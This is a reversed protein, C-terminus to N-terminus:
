PALARELAPRREDLWAVHERLREATGSRWLERFGPVGAPGWTEYTRVAITLRERAVGLLRRRSEPDLGYGECLARLREAPRAPWGWRLRHRDTKLPVWQLAASAVDVVPTAPSAFDWDIFAVPRSDRFVVNSPFLDNHAVIPGDWAAGVYRKWVANPPPVFAAVAEHYRRLLAGVAAVTDDEAVAASVQPHPTEGAVFSLVERGEDDFGLARPAGDFGVRELHSLLAHVTPTHPGAARRM